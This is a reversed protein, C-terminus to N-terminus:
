PAAKLRHCEIEGGAKMVPLIEESPVGLAALPLAPDTDRLRTSRAQRLMLGCRPCPLVAGPALPGDRTYGCRRCRVPLPFSSWTAPEDDDRLTALFEAVTSERSAPSATAAGDLPRHLPCDPDRTVTVPGAVGAGVDIALIRWRPVSGFIVGFAAASLWGACVATTAIASAEPLDDGFPEACSWPLDSMSRQHPSMACAFCPEDASVRLRLEASSASTGGDILPAGVLSCRGLLQIRARRTDVCGIVLDADALEGLGVGSVLDAGRPEVVTAPALRRLAAAAAVAKPAGVDSPGFLVTRSLNSESVVDPDCLVLRGIGALALNKAVENGLAGVGIVIATAADLRGQDWGPILRQRAFRDAEGSAGSASM